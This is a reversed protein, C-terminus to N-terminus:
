YRTRGSLEQKSSSEVTHLAFTPLSPGYQYLIFSLKIYIYKAGDYFSLSQLLNCLVLFANLNHFLAGEEVQVQYDSFAVSLHKLNAFKPDPAGNQM